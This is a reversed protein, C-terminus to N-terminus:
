VRALLTDPGLRALVKPVVPQRHARDLRGCNPGSSREKFLVGGALPTVAGVGLRALEWGGCRKRRPATRGRWRAGGGVRAGELARQM